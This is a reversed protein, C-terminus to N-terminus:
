RAAAYVTPDVIGAEAFGKRRLACADCRGCAAGNVPDYCSHTIAYDIGLAIGHEIIQAKTM